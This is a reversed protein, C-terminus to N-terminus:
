KEEGELARRLSKKAYHIRSKVTGPNCGIVEGMEEYSMDELFKLVLVERHLATLKGLAGHLRSADIGLLMEDSGEDTDVPEDIESLEVWKRERRIAQLAENRAIRYLWVPFTDLRRLKKIGRLVKMWATQLVDDAAAESDVLRRVYYKLSGCYREHLLTFAEEDGGQCRFVLVQEHIRDM